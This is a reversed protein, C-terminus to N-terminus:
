WVLGFGITFGWYDLGIDNAPIMSPVLNLPSGDSLDANYYTYSGTFVSFSWMRLGLEARLGYNLIQRNNKNLSPVPYTEEGPREDIMWGIIRLRTRKKIYPMLGAMAGLSFTNRGGYTYITYDDDQTRTSFPMFEASLGSYQVLAGFQFYKFATLGVYGQFNQFRAYFEETTSGITNVELGYADYFNAENVPNAFLANGGLLLGFRRRKNFYFTHHGSISGYLGRATFNPISSNRNFGFQSYGIGYHLAGRANGPGPDLESFGIIFFAAYEVGQYIEMQRMKAEIEPSPWVNYAAQYYQKATAYDGRAAAQDGQQTYSSALRLAAAAARIGSDVEEDNGANESSNNEDNKNNDDDKDDDSKDKKKTKIDDDDDDGKKQNEKSDDDSSGGSGQSDDKQKRKKLCEKIAYEIEMQSGYESNLISISQINITSANVTNVFSRTRNYCDKESQSMLEGIDWDTVVKMHVTKNALNDKFIICDGNGYANLTMNIFGKATFPFSIGCDALDNGSFFQGNYRYEEITINKLQASVYANSRAETAVEVYGYPGNGIDNNIGYYDENFRKVSQGKALTFFSALVIIFFLQIKM